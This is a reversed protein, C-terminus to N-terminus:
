PASHVLKANKPDAAWGAFYQLALLWAGARLRHMGDDCWIRWAIIDAKDKCHQPLFGKRILQYLADHVLAGRMSTKTAFVPGSPGDWAYGSLITLWGNDDLRIFQTYIPQSPIIDILTRYTEALQYKYGSRYKIM